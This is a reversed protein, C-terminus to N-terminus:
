LGPLLAQDLEEDELKQAEWSEMSLPTKEEKPTWRDLHEVDISTVLGPIIEALGSPLEVQGNIVLEDHCPIRLDLDHEHCLVMSGKLIDAGTGQIPYNVAKRAVEEEPYQGPGTGIEPLYLPRGTATYVVGERPGLVKQAEIWAAADPYAKYWLSRLERARRMDHTGATEAIVEDGGGYVMAFTTNKAEPRAVGMFRATDSHIDGNPDAFVEAMRRDGSIHALIKLEQQKYDFRTWLGNDPLFMTRLHKPVNMINPRASSIRTTRAEMHYRPHLRDLGILPRIYTSLQKSTDRYNLILSAIGSARGSDSNALRELIARNTGLRTRKRKDWSSGKKPMTVPLYAGELSLVYAVQDPSGPNFEYMEDCIGRYFTVDKDLRAQFVEAEEQDVKIGRKTMLTLIQQVRGDRAILGMDTKPALIQYLRYTARIDWCCKDAVTSEDVDLMTKGRPLIDEIEDIPWNFGAAVEKLKGPLGHYHCMLMTDMIPDVILDLEDYLSDLDFLANHFYKEIDPQTLIEIPIYSSIVPWYFADSPSIALGLGILMRNDLDVTEVDCTLVPSSYLAAYVDDPTQYLEPNEGQYYFDAIQKLLPSTWRLSTM